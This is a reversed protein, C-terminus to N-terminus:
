QIGQLMCPFKTGACKLNVGRIIGCQINPTINLVNSTSLIASIHCADICTWFLSFFLAYSKRM